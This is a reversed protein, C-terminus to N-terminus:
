GKGRFANEDFGSLGSVLGGIRAGVVASEIIEDGTNAAAKSLIIRRSGPLVRSQFRSNAGTPLM